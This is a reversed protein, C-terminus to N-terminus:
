IVSSDNNSNNSESDKTPLNEASMNSTGSYDEGDPLPETAPTEKYTEEEDYNIVENNYHPMQNLSSPQNTQADQNNLSPEPQNNGTPEHSATFVEPEGYSVEQAEEQNTENNELSVEADQMLDQSDNSELVPASEKQSIPKQEFGVNEEIVPSESPEPTIQNPIFPENDIDQLVVPQEFSSSESPTEPAVSAPVSFDENLNNNTEQNTQKIAPQEIQDNKPKTNPDLASNQPAYSFSGVPPEAPKEWLKNTDTLLPSKEQNEFNQMQVGQNNSFDGVNSQANKNKFINKFFDLIGM